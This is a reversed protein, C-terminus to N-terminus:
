SFIPQGDDMIDNDPEACYMISSLSVVPIMGTGYYRTGTILLTRYEEWACANPEM